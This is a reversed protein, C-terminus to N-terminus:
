KSKQKWRRLLAVEPSTLPPGAKPMRPREGTLTQLLLGSRAAAAISTATEAIFGGSPNGAQHCAVCRQQLVPAIDRRYSVPQAVLPGAALALLLCAKM